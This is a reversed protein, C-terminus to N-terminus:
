RVTVWIVISRESTRGASTTITNSVKYRQGDTGGILWLTATTGDHSPAPAGNTGDAMTIGAAASFSSSSLTEGTALWSSWDFVWDTTEAPDKFYTKM